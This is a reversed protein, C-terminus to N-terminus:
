SSRDETQDMGKSKNMGPIKPPAASSRQATGDSHVM